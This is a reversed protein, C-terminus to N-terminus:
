PTLVDKLDRLDDLGALEILRWQELQFVCNIPLHEWATEGSPLYQANRVWIDHFLHRFLSLVIGPWVWLRALILHLADQCLPRGAVSFDLVSHFPDSPLERSPLILLVQLICIQHYASEVSYM